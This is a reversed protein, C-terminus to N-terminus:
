SVIPRGRQRLSIVCHMHFGNQQNMAACPSHGVVSDSSV